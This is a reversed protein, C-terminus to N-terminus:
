ACNPEEEDVPIVTLASIGAFFECNDSHQKLTFRNVPLGCFRIRNDNWRVAWWRCNLCCGSTKDM